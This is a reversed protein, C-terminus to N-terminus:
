RSSKLMVLHYAVVRLGSILAQGLYFRGMLGLRPEAQPTPVRFSQGDQMKESRLEQM